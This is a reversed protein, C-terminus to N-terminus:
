LIVRCSTSVNRFQCWQHRPDIFCVSLKVVIVEYCQKSGRVLQYYVTFHYFITVCVHSCCEWCPIAFDCVMACTSWFKVRIMHCCVCLCVTTHVSSSPLLSSRYTDCIRFWVLVSKEDISIIWYLNNWFENPANMSIVTQTTSATDTYATLSDM